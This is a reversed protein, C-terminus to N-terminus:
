LDFSLLMMCDAVPTATSVRRAALRHKEWLLLSSGDIDDRPLFMMVM